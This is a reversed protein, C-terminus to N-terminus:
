IRTIEIKNDLTKNVTFEDGDNPVTIGVPHNDMLYQRAADGMHTAIVPKSYKAVLGMVDSVTMHPKSPEVSTTDLVAIDSVQMIAEVGGCLHCDGSFGIHIDDHRIVYGNALMHPAHQVEYSTAFYGPSVEVNDLEDFECFEMKATAMLEATDIDPHILRFIQRIINAVDHRCYIQLSRLETRNAIGYRGFVLLPVDLSHDGHQHTILLTDIKAIDVGQQLLTKVIGNGCDMLIRDDILTCASRDAVYINGTGVTKIKM